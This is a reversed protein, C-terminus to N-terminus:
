SPRRNLASLGEAWAADALAPDGVALARSCGAIVSALVAVAELDGAAALRELGLAYLRDGALLALDQDGTSVIRGEGVHLLQGERIAEVVFARDDPLADSLPTLTGPDPDVVTEGVLGGQERLASAVAALAASM